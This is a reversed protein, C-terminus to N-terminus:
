GLWYFLGVVSASNGLVTAWYILQFSLKQTKHRITEQAYGGGWWGGLADILHLQAEPTRWIKQQAKTKDRKYLTYSLVNLILYIALPAFGLRSTLLAWLIAVGLGLFALLYLKM